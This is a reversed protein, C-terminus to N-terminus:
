DGAKKGPLPVYGAERLIRQGETSAVFRVFKSATASLKGHWVFSLEKSINDLPFLKLSLRQVKIVGVDSVGIAGSTGFLAAEMSRDSYAVRFSGSRWADENARGFEPIARAVARHGSDGRERQIVVIKKKDSWLKRQGSYIAVLSRADLAQAQVDPHAAIVIAVRAYAASSLQDGEGARLPRSTLGLDIVGDSVARVAGASGISDHVLVKINPEGLRFAAALRRTIPVNSGSGAIVLADPRAPVRLSAVPGGLSPKDGGHASVILAGSVAVTGLVLLVSVVIAGTRTRLM